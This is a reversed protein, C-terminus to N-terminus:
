IRNLNRFSQYLWVLLLVGGFSCVVAAGPPLDGKVSIWLGVCSAVVGLAWGLILRNGLTKALILAGVAPVILYAFVLLVGAVAVSSTVVLGLSVYFLFDWLRHHPMSEVTEPEFSLRYFHKRCLVHFLGVLLYLILMRWIDPIEVFLLRGVLM